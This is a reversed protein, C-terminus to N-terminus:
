PSRGAVRTSPDRLEISSVWTKAAANREADEVVDEIEASRRQSRDIFTDPTQRHVRANPTAAQEKQTQDRREGRDQEDGADREGLHQKDEQLDKPPL